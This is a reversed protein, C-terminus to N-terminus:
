PRPLDLRVIGQRRRVRRPRPRPRRRPLGRARPQGRTCLSTTQRSSSSACRAARSPIARPISSRPRPHRPTRSRSTTSRRGDDAGGHASDRHRPDVWNPSPSGQRPRSRRPRLPGLRRRGCPRGLRHVRRTEPTITPRRRFRTSSRRTPRRRPEVPVAALPARDGLRGRAAQRQHRRRTGRLAVRSPLQVPM